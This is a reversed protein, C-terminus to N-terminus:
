SKKLSRDLLAKPGFLLLLRYPIITCLTCIVKNVLGNICVTKGGMVAEYGEKVVPDAEMWLFKPLKNMKYRNGLVDHFETYTLGPCLATININSGEYERALAKSLSLVYAKVPTYLSGKGEPTYAAISAVNIIRGYNQAKMQPLALHCLETVSTMMVNLFGYISEWNDHSFTKPLSYGANNILFDITINQSNLHEFIKKPTEKLSLDAEIVTVKIKNQATLNKAIEELLNKRRACLVLNYGKTALLKAFSLGLGASAGTIIATKPHM